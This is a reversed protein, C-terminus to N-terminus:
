PQYKRLNIARIKVTKILENYGRMSRILMIKDDNSAIVYSADKPIGFRPRRLEVIDNWLFAKKTGIINDTEIGIDTATVSYFLVKLVFFIAVIFLILLFMLKLLDLDFAEIQKLRSAYFIIATLIALGGLIFPISIFKPFHIKVIERHNKKM